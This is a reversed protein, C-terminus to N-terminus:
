LFVYAAGRKERGDTDYRPAGVVMTDGSIAISNGFFIDTVENAPDDTTLKATQFVPDITLPYRAHDDNVRVALNDAQTELWASYQKGDADVVMLGSYRLVTNGDAATLKMGLGDPDIDARLGGNMSLLITLLEQESKGSAPPSDLTFGQQLGYPGNVYWEKLPGRRYTVRNNSQEPLSPQVKQLDSGYGYAQLTMDFRHGGSQLELGKEAFNVLYRQTPNNLTIKNGDGVGHYSKQDQGIATSIAYRASLPIDEISDSTPSKVASDLNKESYIAGASTALSTCLITL